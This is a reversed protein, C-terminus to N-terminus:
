STESLDKLHHWTRPPLYKSRLSPFLMTTGTDERLGNLDRGVFALGFLACSLRWLKKWRGCGFTLFGSGEECGSLTLLEVGGSAIPLGAASSKSDSPESRSSGRNKSFALFSMKAGM